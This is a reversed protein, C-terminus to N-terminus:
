SPPHPKSGAEKGLRGILFLFGLLASPKKSGILSDVMTSGLEDMHQSVLRMRKSLLAVAFELSAEGYPHAHRAFIKALLEKMLGSLEPSSSYDLESPLAARLICAQLISDNFRHFNEPSLVVSEYGSAKLQLALDPIERARQLVSSATLFVTENSAADDKVKGQFFVFGETLVLDKGNSAPLFSHYSKGIANVALEISKEILSQDVSTLDLEAAEMESALDAYRKWVPVNAEVGVPLSVWSSFGYSRAASPGRVLFQRLRDWVEESRSVGLAVVFHRPLKPAFERLDRSVERLMGGDGAVAQVVAVGKSSKLAEASLASNSLLTLASGAGKAEQLEDALSQALLESGNDDVYIVTDVSAPIQWRAVDRLWKRVDGLEAVSKGDFGVLHVEGRGRRAKNLVLSKSEGLQKLYRSLAKPEHHVSITVGRPPKSRSTFHEGILEIHTETGDPLRSIDLSKVDDLAILTRGGDDIKSRNVLTLVVDDAFRNEKILRKAMGGTTSASVIVAHPVTPRLLKSIEKYSHFSEIRAHSGVFRMAEKVILYIGMSDILVLELKRERLAPLEAILACGVFALEVESAVLERAQVFVKNVTGSPHRFVHGGPASQVVGNRQVLEALGADIVKQPSLVFGGGDPKAQEVVAFTGDQQWAIFQWAKIFPLGGRESRALFSEKALSDSKWHTLLENIGAQNSIVLLVDPLAPLARLAVKLEDFLDNSTLSARADFFVCLAETQIGTRECPAVCRYSFSRTM